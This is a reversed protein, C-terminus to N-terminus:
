LKLRPNNLATNSGAQKSELVPTAKPPVPPKAFFIQYTFLVAMSLIVALITRKDM